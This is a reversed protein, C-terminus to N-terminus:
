LNIHLESALWRLTMALHTYPSIPTGSSNVVNQEDPQVAIPLILDLVKNFTPRDIAGFKREFVM